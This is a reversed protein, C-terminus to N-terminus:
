FFIDALEKIERTIKRDDTKIKFFNFSFCLVGIQKNQKLFCCSSALNKSFLM